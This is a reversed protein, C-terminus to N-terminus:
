KKWFQVKTGQIGVSISGKSIADIRLGGIEAEEKSSFTVEIPSNNISSNIIKLAADVDDVVSQTLTIPPKGTLFTVLPDKQVGLINDPIKNAAILKINM